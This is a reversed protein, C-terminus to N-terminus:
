KNFRNVLDGLAALDKAKLLRKSSAKNAELVDATSNDKFLAEYAALLDAATAISESVVIDASRQGTGDHDRFGIDGNLIDGSLIDLTGANDAGAASKGPEGANMKDADAEGIKGRGIRGSKIREALRKEIVSKIDEVTDDDLDSLDDDAEIGMDLMIERKAAEIDQESSVGAQADVQADAAAGDDAVAVDPAVDPAVGPASHQGFDPIEDEFDVEDPLVTAADRNKAGSAKKRNKKDKASVTASLAKAPPTKAPPTKSTAPRSATASRSGIRVGRRVPAPKDGKNGGSDDTAGRSDKVGGEEAGEDGAGGAGAAKTRARPIPSTAVSEASRIQTVTAPGNQPAARGPVPGLTRINPPTVSIKRLILARVKDLMESGEYYASRFVPSIREIASRWADTVVGKGSRRSAYFESLPVTDSNKAIDQAMGVGEFTRTQGNALHLTIRVRAFAHHVTDVGVEAVPGAGAGMNQGGQHPMQKGDVKHEVVEFSFQDGFLLHFLRMQARSPVYATVKRMGSRGPHEDALMIHANIPALARLVRAQHLTFGTPLVVDQEPRLREYFTEMATVRVAVDRDGVVNTVDIMTNDSDFVPDFAFKNLFESIEDDTDIASSIKSFNM